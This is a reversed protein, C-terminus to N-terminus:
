APKREARTGKRWSWGKRTWRTKIQDPNETTARHVHEFLGQAPFYRPFRLAVYAGDGTGLDVEISPQPTFPVGITKQYVDLRGKASALLIRIRLRHTVQVPVTRMEYPDRYKLITTM